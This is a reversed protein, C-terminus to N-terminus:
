VVWKYRKGLHVLRVTGKDIWYDRAMEAYTKCEANERITRVDDPTLKCDSRYAKAYPIRIHKFTYGNLARAMTTPNVGYEQAWRRATWRERNFKARIVQADTLKRRM